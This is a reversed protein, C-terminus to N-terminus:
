YGRQFQDGRRSHRVGRPGKLFRRGAEFASKQDGDFSWVAASGGDAQCVIAGWNSQWVQDANAATPSVRLLPVAMSSPQNVLM